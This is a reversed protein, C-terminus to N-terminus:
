RELFKNIEEESLEGIVNNRAQYLVNGDINRLTSFDNFDDELAGVLRFAEYLIPKLWGVLGGCLHHILEPMASNVDSFGLSIPANLDEEIKKLLELFAEDYEKFWPITKPFYRGVYQDSLTRLEEIEPTGVCAVIVGAKNTIDKLQEMAEKKTVYRSTLVFDLEDIILLEVKQKKLLEYTRTKLEEIKGGVIKSNLGKRIIESYLAAITFPSPCEIYVVPIIDIETGDSTTETYCTTSEAYKKMMLTKGVRSKGKIFLSQPTEKNGSDLGRRRLRRREDLLNWIKKVEPHVIYLNIIRQQFEEFENIIM